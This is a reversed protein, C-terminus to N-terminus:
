GDHLQGLDGRDRSDLDNEKLVWWKNKGEFYNIEIERGYGHWHGICLVKVCYCRKLDDQDDVSSDREGNESTLEDDIM